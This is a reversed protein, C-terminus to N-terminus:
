GGDANLSPKHTRIYIAEKVGREFWIHDVLLIKAKDLTVSHDKHHLHKSVESNVSSRRKREMLRTGM